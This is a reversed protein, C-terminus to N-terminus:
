SANWVNATDTLVFRIKEGPSMSLTNRGLAVPGLYDSANAFDVLLIGTGRHELWVADQATLSASTIHTFTDGGSGTYVVTTESGEDYDGAVLSYNGAQPNETPGFGAGGGILESLNTWFAPAGTPDQNVNPAQLSVYINGDSGKAWGNVPYDTLSDWVAIGQENIHALFEDARLQWWNQVSSPPVESTWGTKTKTAGPDTTSGTSGWTGNTTIDPKAQAM